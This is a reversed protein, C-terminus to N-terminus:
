IVVNTKIVSECDLCEFIRIEYGEKVRDPTRRVLHATGGCHECRIPEVFKQKEDFFRAVSMAKNRHFETRRKNNEKSFDLLREAFEYSRALTLWSQQLRLYDNRLEEFIAEKAKRACEEAHAYCDGVEKSLKRLM